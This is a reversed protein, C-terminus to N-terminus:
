PDFVLTALRQGENRAQAPAAGCAELCAALSEAAYAPAAGAGQPAPQPPATDALLAAERREAALEAQMLRDAGAALAPSGLADAARRAARRAARLPRLLHRDILEVRAMAQRLAAGRVCEGGAARWCCYLLLMVNAGHADQLAVCCSAVGPRAYRGCAFEWFEQVRLIERDLCASERRGACASDRKFLAAAM